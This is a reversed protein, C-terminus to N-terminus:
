FDAIVLKKMNMLHAFAGPRQMLEGMNEPVIQWSVGYKDKCWGCQEAEPVTSLQAWLRDIEAQDKCTVVLSIGENFPAGKDDGADMAAFWQGELQFDSYMLAEASASGSPSGYRSLTRVSSDPFVSVYYNIAEEAHNTNAESFMLSPMIMPRDEARDKTLMLQWTVNYKDKVWGYRESWPYTDLAMLAEGGGLLTNWLADLKEHAQPDRTADFHVFFSISHNPTFEAGANIAGFRMGGLEFDVTLEKGALDQQFDALGEETSNPYYATDFIRADPFAAVYFDVAEKANGNFWINPTINQAM